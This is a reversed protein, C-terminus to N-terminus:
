VVAKKQNRELEKQMSRQKESFYVAIISVPWVFALALGGVAACFKGSGYKKTDILWYMFAPWLLAVLFTYVILFLLEVINM